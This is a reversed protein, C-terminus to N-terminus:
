ERAKATSTARVDEFSLTKLFAVLDSIDDESLEVGFVPEASWAGLRRYFEARARDDLTGVASNALPDVHSRIAEPLSYVSGSHSYPATKEVNYLPPTRFKYLDSPDATVNYRGFDIGFGNAGRGFQDFPIAHFQLDSFYPGNHCSVCTGRGYFLLAGRLEPETLTENSFVFRHFKTTQLQFRDRIFNALSQAIHEYTIQSRDVGFAKQILPAISENRQIRQAIESYIKSATKIDETKLAEAADDDRVMEKIQVPPLHEAVVLPDISPAAAGFQSTVDDGALSVRGDWFFTNFGKAGRGWFPLTNRPLMDGGKKMRELGEGEGRTGIGLPIGDASAFQDLHCNQCAIERTLSLDKSAFLLKGAAAKQADIEPLLTEVPVLGTDKAAQRVTNERLGDAWAVSVSLLVYGLLLNTAFKM